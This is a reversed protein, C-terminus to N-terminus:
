ESTFFRAVARALGEDTMVCVSRYETGVAHGLSERDAFDSVPTDHATCMRHFKSRTNESADGAILVYRAKGRRITDEAMMEGSVLKGARKALGLYGFVRKRVEDTM